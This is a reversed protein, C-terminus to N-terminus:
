FCVHLGQTWIQLGEGNGDACGEGNGEEGKGVDCGEGNGDEGKGVDCGEGNGEACGESSGVTNGSQDISPEDVSTGSIHHPMNDAKAQVFKRSERRM